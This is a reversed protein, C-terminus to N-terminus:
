RPYYSDSIRAAVRLSRRMAAALISRHGAQGIRRIPGHDERRPAVLLGAVAVLFRGIPHELEGLFLGPEQPEVGGAAVPEADGDAVPFAFVGDDRPLRLGLMRGRLALSARQYSDYSRRIARTSRAYPISGLTM